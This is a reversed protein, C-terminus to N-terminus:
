GANSAPPSVGVQLYTFHNGRQGPPVVQRGDLIVPTAMSQALTPWDQQKYENWSTAIIAGDAHHLAEALTPCARVAVGSAAQAAAATVAPDHITINAGAAHLAQIIKLAPSERLDDTDPKFAVGVVTISKGQLSGNHTALLREVIKGSRQRNIDLVAELLPAAYGVSRAHRYLAKVDKPFCSGGFGIGGRLYSLLGPRQRNDSPGCWFRKDEFVGNMVVEESLGPITECLNTIENAYSILTALLCNAAYKIMEANRTSTTIVPCEFGTYMAQLISTSRSDDAGIVIRDPHTFDEVACGERLFEPNMALGFGQGAALGTAQEVTQRIATDVSGPVVTSKVTIVHFAAAHCLNEAIDAAAQQVYSLDIGKETSPTGVCILSVESGQLAQALSATARFRGSALQTALLPEVGPEYFPVKGQMLNEVRAADVDVCTVSHGKESLGLATTLGVFGAGIVTIKM